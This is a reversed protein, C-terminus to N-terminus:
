DNVGRIDFVRVPAIHDNVLFTRIIFRILRILQLKSVSLRCYGNLIIVLDHVHGFSLLSVFQLAHQLSVDLSSM